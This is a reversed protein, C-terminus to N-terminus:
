KNPAPPPTMPRKPEPVPNLSRQPVLRGFMTPVYREHYSELWVIRGDDLFTPTWAFRRRDQMLESSTSLFLM